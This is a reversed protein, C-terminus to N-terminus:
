SAFYGILFLVTNSEDEEDMVRIEIDAVGSKEEFKSAVHFHDMTGSKLMELLGIGTTAIM